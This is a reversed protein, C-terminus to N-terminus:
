SWLDPLSPVEVGGGQGGREIVWLFLCDLWGGRGGFLEFLEFFGVEAFAGAYHAFGLREEGHALGVDGVRGGHLQVARATFVEVVWLRGAVEGDVAGVEPSREM